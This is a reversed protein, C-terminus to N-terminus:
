TGPRSSGGLSPSRGTRAVTASSTSIRRRGCRWCRACGSEENHAPVIVCVTRPPIVLGDGAYPGCRIAREPGAAAAHRPLAPLTLEYDLESRVDQAPAVRRVVLGDYASGAPEVPALDELTALDALFAELSRASVEVAEGDSRGGVAPATSSPVADIWAVVRRRVADPVGLPLRVSLRVDREAGGEPICARGDHEAM